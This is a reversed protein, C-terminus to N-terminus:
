KIKFQEQSTYKRRSINKSAPQASIKYKRGNKYGARLVLTKKRWRARVIM